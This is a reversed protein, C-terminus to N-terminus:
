SAAAKRRSFYGAHALIREGDLEEGAEDAVGGFVLDEGVAEVGAQLVFAQAAPKGRMVNLAAPLEVLLDVFGDAHV